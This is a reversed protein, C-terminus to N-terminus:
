TPAQERWCRLAMATQECLTYTLAVLRAPLYNLLDDLRAAAQEFSRAYGPTLVAIERPGQCRLEELLTVHIEDNRLLRLERFHAHRLDIRGNATVEVRRADHIDQGACCAGKRALM